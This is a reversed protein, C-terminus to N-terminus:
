FKLHVSLTLSKELKLCIMLRKQVLCFIPVQAGSKLQEKLRADDAAEKKAQEDEAIGWKANAVMGNGIGESLAAAIDGLLSM